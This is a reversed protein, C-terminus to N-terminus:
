KFVSLINSFNDTWLATTKNKKIELNPYNAGEKSLWDPDSVLCYQSSTLYQDKETSTATLTIGNLVKHLDLYKNSIHFLILGGEKLRDNYVDIAEKTLLHVPIADGNFADVLIIDYKEPSKAINLRGDGLIINVEAKSDRIFSFQNKAIDIVKPDIEYFNILDGELGYYALTGAGLGIAGIKLPKGGTKERYLGISIGLPSLKSYYATPEYILEGSAPSIPQFGHMIRGNILKIREKTKKVAIAGYFNRSEIIDPNHLKSIEEEVHIWSFYLIAFIAAVRFVKEIDPSYFLRLNHRFIIFIIFSFAIVNLIIFELNSNFLIPAIFNVFVGGLAGGLAIYLYFVPLKRYVPRLEYLEGHFIMLLSYLLCLVLLIKYLGVYSSQTLILIVLFFATFVYFARNYPETKGFIIIFTTLYIGLPLIWLLPVPAIDHTLHATYSLLLATGMFSFCLWLLFNKLSIKGTEPKEISKATLNEGRIVLVASIIVTLALLWYAYQWMDAAFNIPFNPELVLPFFLLALVSGTNSTSYLFYPDQRRTIGYWNQMLTSVSSVFVLPIFLYKILVSLLSWAPSLFDPQVADDMPIELIFLSLIIFVIYIVAQHNKKLKSVLYTFTYGGLLAFQFFFLCLIWVQSVGGYMPTLIKGVLPQILFLLFAGLFVNLSFLLNFTM